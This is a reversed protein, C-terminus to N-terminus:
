RKDYEMSPRLRLIENIYLVLKKQELMAYTSSLIAILLNLLLINNLVIFSVLFIDGLYESKNNDKLDDFDYDALAANFLTKLSTYFDKYADTSSFLLNGISAFVVIQTGFLVMFILTDYLMNQIM